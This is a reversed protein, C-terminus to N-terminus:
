YWTNPRNTMQEIELEEEDLLEEYESCQEIFLMLEELGLRYLRAEEKNEARTSIFEYKLFWIILDLYEWYDRSM